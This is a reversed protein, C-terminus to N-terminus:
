NHQEDHVEKRLDQISKYLNQTFEKNNSQDAKLASVDEALRDIKNVLRELQSSVYKLQAPADEGAAIHRALQDSLTKLKDSELREVKDALLRREAADCALSHRIYSLVVAGVVTGGGLAGMSSDILTSLDM